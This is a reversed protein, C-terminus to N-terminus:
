IPEVFLYRATNFGISVQKQGIELTITQNFPLIERVTGRAGPVVGETELYKLIDPHAEVAEHIRRVIVEQDERVDQLCVWHDAVHEYGPLPNGHPCTQPDEMSTKLRDELDESLTHEIQHAEHHVQSWPVNLVKELMWETLMHRRILSAAAECGAPTLHISKQADVTIWGDRLMRKLTNTVTPASVDLSEALRAAITPEEDREMIYLVGLYDEITPSPRNELPPKLNQSM